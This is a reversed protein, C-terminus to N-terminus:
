LAELTTRQTKWTAIKGALVEGQNVREKIEAQSAAIEAHAAAIRAEAAKIARQNASIQTDFYKIMDDVENIIQRKEKTENAM